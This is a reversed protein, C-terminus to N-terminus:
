KIKSTQLLKRRRKLAWFHNKIDWLIRHKSAKTEKELRFLDTINEIATYNLENKRRLLNKIDKIINEKELGLSEMMIHQGFFFKKFFLCIISRLFDNSFVKLYNLHNKLLVLKEVSNFNLLSVKLDQLLNM